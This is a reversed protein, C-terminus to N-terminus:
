DSDDSDSDMMAAFLGGQKPASKSSKPAGGRQQLRGPKKASPTLWTTTTMASQKAVYKSGGGAAKKVVKKKRLKARLADCRITFQEDSEFWGRSALELSAIQEELESKRGMAETEKLTMLRGKAKAEVEELKLVEATLKKIQPETKLSPVFTGDIKEIKAKRQEVKELMESIKEAKKGTASTANDRLVQIKESVQALLLEKEAKTLEGKEEVQEKMAKKTEERKEDLSEVGDYLRQELPGLSVGTMLNDDFGKIIAQVHEIFAIMSKKESWTPTKSVLLRSFTALSSCVLMFESSNSNYVGEGEEIGDSDVNSNASAEPPPSVEPFVVVTKLNKGTDHQSKFAGGAAEDGGETDQLYGVSRLAATVASFAGQDYKGRALKGGGVVLTIRPPLTLPFPRRFAAEVQSSISSAPMGALDFTESSDCSAIKLALGSLEALASM